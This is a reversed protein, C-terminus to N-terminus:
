AKIGDFFDIYNNSLKGVSLMRAEKDDLYIDNVITIHGDPVIYSFYIGNKLNLIAYANLFEIIYKENINFMNLFEIGFRQVLDNTENNFLNLLKQKLESTGIEKVIFFVDELSQGLLKNLFKKMIAHYKIVCECHSFRIILYRSNVDIIEELINNSSLKIICYINYALSLEKLINPNINFPNHIIQKLNKKWFKKLSLNTPVRGSSIHPQFVAGENELIKFYNRITASSIEYDLQSKLFESGIPENSKVYESIMNNLLIYKKNM